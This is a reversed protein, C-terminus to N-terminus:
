NKRQLILASILSIVLGIIMVTLFMILAMFGSGYDPIEGKYGQARMVETYEEFFDPNIVTTYIFDAIAIGFATFASILLGILVAERFTLKGNNEKDRFHKIGFFVFVLSAIMTIYGFVEQTSFDMDQGLYLGGLFFVLALILGYTGFKIITNKM